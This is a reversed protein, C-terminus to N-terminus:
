RRVQRRQEDTKGRNELETINGNRYRLSGIIKNNKLIDVRTHCGFDFTRSAVEGPGYKRHWYRLGADAAKAANMSLRTAVSACGSGAAGDHGPQSERANCYSCGPGSLQESLAVRVTARESLDQLWQNVTRDAMRPDTGPQGIKRAILRDIVLRHELEKEYEGATGYLSKMSQRFAAEGLGSAVRAEAAAAAIDDKSVTIGAKRAEQLVLREAILENLARHRLDAAVAGSMHQIRAVAADLESVKIQEGNVEAAIGNPLYFKYYGIAAAVVIIPVFLLAIFYVRPQKCANKSQRNGLPRGCKACFATNTDNIENCDPCNM